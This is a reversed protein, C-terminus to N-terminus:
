SEYKPFIVNETKSVYVRVVEYKSWIVKESVYVRVIEYKSCIVNETISVYVCRISIDKTLSYHRFVM